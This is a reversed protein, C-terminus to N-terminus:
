DLAGLSVLALVLDIVEGDDDEQARNERMVGGGASPPPEDPPPPTPAEFLPLFSTAPLRTLEAVRDFVQRAAIQAASTLPPDDPGTFQFLRAITQQQPTLAPQAAQRITAALASQPPPEDRGIPFQQPLLRTIDPASTTFLIRRVLPPDDRGVPSAPPPLRTIDVASQRAQLLTTNRVFLVDPTAPAAVQFLALNFVVPLRCEPIGTTVAAQYLARRNALLEVPVDEDYEQDFWDASSLRGFWGRTSFPRDGTFRLAM